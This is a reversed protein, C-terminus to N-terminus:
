RLASDVYNTHFEEDLNAYDWAVIKWKSTFADYAYLVKFKRKDSLQRGMSSAYERYEATWSATFTGMVVRYYDVVKKQEENRVIKEIKFTGQPIILWGDEARVNARRQLDLGKEGARVTLEAKGGLAMNRFDEWNFRRQSLVEMKTIAIVGLRDLVKYGDLDKESLEGKSIDPELPERVVKLNGLKIRLVGASRWHGELPSMAERDSLSPAAARAQSVFLVSLALTLLLRMKKGRTLGSINRLLCMNRLGAEFGDFSDGSHLLYGQGSRWQSRVLAGRIRKPRYM